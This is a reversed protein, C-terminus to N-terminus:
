PRSLARAQRPHPVPRATPAGDGLPLDPFLIELEARLAADGELWDAGPNFSESLTGESCLIVPADCMLHVYRVTDMEVRRVTKDNVLHVAAVLVEPEGFLLEARAGKVLMRHQPSVLLPRENGIAGAEFRVPALARVGPVASEGAWILTEATGDVTTVADGACLDEVLVRGDPTDILTGAVFCAPGFRPIAIDNQQSVWTSNQFTGERLVSNDTPTFLRRGDQLYFTVGSFTQSVGDIRLTVTDGDFTRTVRSGDITDGDRRGIDSDDNVDTLTLNIPTLVTGTSPPSYPDILIFQDTFSQPM